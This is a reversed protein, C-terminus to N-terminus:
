GRQPQRGDGQHRGRDREGDGDEDIGWRHRNSGSCREAKADKLDLDSLTVDITEGPNCAVPGETTNLYRPGVDKNTFKM